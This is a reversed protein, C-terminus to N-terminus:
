VLHGISSNNCYRLQSSCIVLLRTSLNATSQLRFSLTGDLSRYHSCSTTSDGTGTSSTIRSPPPCTWSRSGARSSGIRASGNVSSEDACTLWHFLNLQFLWLKTQLVASVLIPHTREVILGKHKCQWCEWCHQQQNIERCCWSFRPFARVSFQDRPPQTPLAIGQISM